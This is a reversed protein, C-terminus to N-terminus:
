KARGLGLGGRRILPSGTAQLLYSGYGTAPLTASFPRTVSAVYGSDASSFSAAGGSVQLSGLTLGTATYQYISAGDAWAGSFGGAAM